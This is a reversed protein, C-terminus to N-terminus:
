METRQYFIYIIVDIEGIVLYWFYAHLVEIEGDSTPIVTRGFSEENSQLRTPSQRYNRVGNRSNALM